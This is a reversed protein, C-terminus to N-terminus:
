QGSTTPMLLRFPTCAFHIPFRNVVGPENPLDVIILLDASVV